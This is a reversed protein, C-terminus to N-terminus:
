KRLLRRFVRTSEADAFTALEDLIAIDSEGLAPSGSILKTAVERLDQRYYDLTGGHAARIQQVFSGPIGLSPEQGGQPDLLAALRTVLDGLDRQQAALEAGDIADAGPLRYHRKKLLTVVYNIRQALEAATQYENALLGIDSM